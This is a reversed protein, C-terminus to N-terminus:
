TISTVHQQLCATRQARVCLLVFLLVSAFRVFTQKRRLRVQAYRWPALCTIHKTGWVFSVRSMVRAGSQSFSFSARGLSAHLVERLKSWQWGRCFYVLECFSAYNGSIAVVIVLFLHILFDVQCLLLEVHVWILLNTGQMFLLRTPQSKVSVTNAVGIHIDLRFLYYFIFCYFLTWSACVDVPM